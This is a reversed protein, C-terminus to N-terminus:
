EFCGNDQMAKYVDAFGGDFSSKGKCYASLHFVYEPGNQYIQLTSDRPLSEDPVALTKVANNGYYFVDFKSISQYAYPASNEHTQSDPFAYFDYGYFGGSAPIDLVSIWESEAYEGDMPIGPQPLGWFGLGGREMLALHKAGDKEALVVQWHQSGKDSSHIFGEEIIIARRYGGILMALSYSNMQLTVGLLALLVLIVAILKKKSAKM